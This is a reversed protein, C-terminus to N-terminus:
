QSMGPLPFRMAYCTGGARDAELKGDLQQALMHALRLGLSQPAHPDVDEPLGIGDDSVTLLCHGEALPRVAVYVQGPGSGPPFAHKLANSVWENVILGCAVATDLDLKVSDVEVQIMAPAEADSYIDVLYSVIGQVYDALDIRSLDSAQYLQEEAFAMARVRNLSERLARHAEGDQTYSTQMDLLSAIVQLNNKVRDHIEQLLVVKERLADRIQREARRRVVVERQLDQNAVYLEATRENVLEALHERHQKLEEEVQKRQIAYGIARTLLDTDFQGKVLYDQAGHRVAKLALERDDNGTLVIIPVRPARVQTRSFTEFDQADPLQLDLLVIDFAEGDLQELAEALRPRHTLRFGSEDSDVLMERLLRADGPNDEVLLANIPTDVM